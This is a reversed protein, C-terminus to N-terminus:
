LMKDMKLCTDYLAKKYYGDQYNQNKNFEEVFNDRCFASIEDGNHGDFICFISKDNGLDLM